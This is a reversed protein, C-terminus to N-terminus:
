RPIGNTAPKNLLIMRALIFPSSQYLFLNIGAMEGNVSVDIFDSTHERKSSDLSEPLLFHIYFLDLIALVLSTIFVRHQGLPHIDSNKSSGFHHATPESEDSNNENEDDLHFMRMFNRGGQGKGEDDVNALDTLPAM